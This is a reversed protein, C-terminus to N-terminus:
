GRLFLWYVAGVFAAASLAGKLTASTLTDHEPPADASATLHTTLSAPALPLAIAPTKATAAAAKKREYAAAIKAAERKEIAIVTARSKAADIARLSPPLELDIAGIKGRLNAKAIEKDLALRMQPIWGQMQRAQYALEYAEAGTLTSRTPSIGAGYPRPPPPQYPEPVLKYALDELKRAWNRLDTPLPLRVRNMERVLTEIEDQLDSVIDRRRAATLAGRAFRASLAQYQANPKGPNAEMSAIMAKAQATPMGALETAILYVGALRSQVGAKNIAYGAFAPNIAGKLADAAASAFVQSNMHQVSALMDLINRYVPAQYDQRTVYEPQAAALYM